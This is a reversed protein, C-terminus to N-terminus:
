YLYLNSVWFVKLNKCKPVPDEKQLARGREFKGSEGNQYHADKGFQYDCCSSPIEYDVIM